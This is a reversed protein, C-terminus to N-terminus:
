RCEFFRMKKILFLTSPSMTDDIKNSVASPFTIPVFYYSRSLYQDFRLQHAPIQTHHSDPPLCYLFSLPLSVWVRLSVSQDSSLHSFFFRLVPFATPRNTIIYVEGHPVVIELPGLTKWISLFSPRPCCRTSSHQFTFYCTAKWHPFSTQCLFAYFVFTLLM